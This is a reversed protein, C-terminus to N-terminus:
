WEGATGSQPRAFGTNYWNYLHGRHKELRAITALTRGTLAAFEPATLFGLECAAQRANLLLGLNTPSVRAAEYLGDEEVNDPILYNHREGGFQHFYRWIRLAHALLFVEEAPGLRQREERPPKNLWVTVM